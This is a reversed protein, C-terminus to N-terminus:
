YLDEDCVLATFPGMALSNVGFSNLISSQRTVELEEWLSSNTTEPQQSLAQSLKQSTQEPKIETALHGVKIQSEKM